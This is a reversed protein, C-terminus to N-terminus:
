KERNIEIYIKDRETGNVKEIGRQQDENDRQWSKIYLEKKCREM